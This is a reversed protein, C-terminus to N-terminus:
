RHHDRDAAGRRERPDSPDRGGRGQRRTGGLRARRREAGARLHDDRARHRGRRADARLQRHLDVGGPARAHGGRRGRRLGRVAIEDFNVTEDFGQSLTEHVLAITGVRRVAEELSARAADDTVRRAQLRLLAAVTQLNNKVRHHIERITADKTLLEQERRRLESVDRLLVMAGTRVGGFTLPIARMTITASTTEVESRWAGARDCSRWRSTSTRATARSSTPSSRPWCRASSTASTVWGTCPRSPTRAPTSSWARPM